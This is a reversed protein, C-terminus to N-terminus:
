IQSELSGGGAARTRWGLRERRAARKALLAFAPVLLFYQATLILGGVLGAIAAAVRLYARGFRAARARWLALGRRRAVLRGLERRTYMMHFEEDRLVEDFVAQTAPDHGLIDRYVAFREAAARESLHLFALLASDGLNDVRVGGLGPEGPALWDSDLLGGGGGARSRGLARGRAGFLHAHRGEDLAHRLLLRRLAPDRTSEAARAIDRGGEAETVAFRLLKRARRDADRWVWRHL